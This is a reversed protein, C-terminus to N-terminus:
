KRDGFKPATNGFRLSGDRANLSKRGKPGGQSTIGLSCKSSVFKPFHHMAYSLTKYKTNGAGLRGLNSARYFTVLNAHYLPFSMQSLIRYLAAAGIKSTKGNENKVM